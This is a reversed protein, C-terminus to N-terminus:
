LQHSGGEKPHPSASCKGLGPPACKKEWVEEVLDMLADLFDEDCSAVRVMEPLIGSSGGAKGRKLKHVAKEVEVRSPLEDMWERLPRQKAKELQTEDFFSQINLIKHFHRRWREQQEELTKCPNGEEDKVSAMKVPVLGRRGRQMDRICSWVVKGGHRGRQAKAAKKMFWENKAERIAKRVDRRVKMFKRRDNEKKTGLWKTYLKNREEVLPKFIHSNELFWDPDRRKTKGLLLQASECLAKKIVEWKEEVSMIGDLAGKVSEGVRQQFKGRITMEGNDDVSPGQLKATDFRGKSSVDERPKCSRSKMRVDLKMRLMHHDTGCEAGRVVAVDKCWQQYGQKVIAYDICHWKKTKPHQWTAKHINKKEYWTNCVTAENMSLFALLEKGAENTEGFGHPGRVRWWEDGDQRSGVRANFDGLM